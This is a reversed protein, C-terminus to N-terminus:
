ILVSLTSRTQLIVLIRSDSIANHFRDTRNQQQHNDHRWGQRLLASAASISRRRSRRMIRVIQRANPQAARGAGQVVGCRRETGSSFGREVRILRGKARSGDRRREAIVRESACIRVPNRSPQDAVGSLDLEDLKRVLHHLQDFPITYPTLDPRVATGKGLIRIQGPVAVGNSPPFTVLKNDVGGPEIRSCPGVFLSQGLAVGSANLLTVM